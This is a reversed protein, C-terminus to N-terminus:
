KVETNPAPTEAAKQVAAIIMPLNNIVNTTAGNFHLSQALASLIASSFLALAIYTNGGSGLLAMACGSPIAAAGVHIANLATPNIKLAM